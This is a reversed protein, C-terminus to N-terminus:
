CEADPLELPKCDILNPLARIRQVLDDPIQSDVQLLCLAQTGDESRGLKLSGINIGQAGLIEGLSGVVGPRDYNRLLLMNGCPRAEMDFGDIGVIRAHRDAFLTGRLSHESTAIQIENVFSQGQESTSCEFAIGQDQLLFRANIANADELGRAKLFSEQLATELAQTNERALRGAVRIQLSNTQTDIQGLMSGMRRVLECYGELNFDLNRDIVPLNIAGSVFGEDLYKIVRAVIDACVSEQAVDTAAGIHPTCFVRPHRFLAHDAGIPESAYVDLAAGGLHGQNLSGLLADEDALAGGAINVFLSGPQMTAFWDRDFMGANEPTNSCCAVIIDAQQRLQQADVIQFQHEDDANAMRPQTDTGLVRMNLARAYGALTRGLNGMGVIGLTRGSLEMGLLEARNWQSAALQNRAEELRRATAIVLGLALEAASRSSISPTHLVVIGAKSAAEVDINYSGVGARGIVQLQPCAAIIDATIRTHSRVILADADAATRALVEPDPADLSIVEGTWENLRQRATSELKDCIVIKM